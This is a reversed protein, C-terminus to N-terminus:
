LVLTRCLFISTSNVSLVIPITITSTSHYLLSVSLVSENRRACLFMIDPCVCINRHSCTHLVTSPENGTRLIPCLGRAKFSHMQTGCVSTWLTQPIYVRTDPLRLMLGMNLASLRNTALSFLSASSLKECTSGIFLNKHDVYLLHLVTSFQANCPHVTSCLVLSSTENGYYSAKSSGAVHSQKTAHLIKHNWIFTIVFLNNHRGRWTQLTCVCIQATSPWWRSSTRRHHRKLVQEWVATKVGLNINCIYTICIILVSWLSKLTVHSDAAPSCHKVHLQIILLANYFCTLCLLHRQLRSWCECLPLSPKDWDDWQHSSLSWICLSVTSKPQMCHRIWGPAGNSAQPDTWM